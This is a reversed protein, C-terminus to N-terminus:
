LQYLFHEVPISNYWRLLDAFNIDNILNCRSTLM